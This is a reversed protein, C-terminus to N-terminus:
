VLRFGTLRAFVIYREAASYRPHCATLVLQPHGVDEIVDIRDPTVVETHSVAYRFTGYPLEFTIRDGRQLEAIEGFPAMYTTRHGAVAVTGAQGPLATMPYHGPGRQLTGTDIGEFVVADLDGLGPARLRGIPDGSSTQRAFRRALVRAARPSTRYAAGGQARQARRAAARDGPAPFRAEVESLDSGAARQQISGYVSSVPEEYVLTLAVDLLIVVAATILATSLIQSLRAM